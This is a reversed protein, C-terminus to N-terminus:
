RCGDRCDPVPTGSDRWSRIEEAGVRRVLLREQRVENHPGAAQIDRETLVVQPTAASGPIDEFVYHRIGTNLWGNGAMIEDFVGFRRLHAIGSSVTEDKAIGIATFRRGTERARRQVSRKLAEILEPLDKKNSPGCTSSGIYTLM